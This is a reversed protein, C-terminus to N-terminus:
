IESMRLPSRIGVQQHERILLLQVQFVRVKATCVVWSSSHNNVLLVVVFRLVVKAASAGTVVVLLVFFLFR